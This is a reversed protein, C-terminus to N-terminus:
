KAVEAIAESSAVRTGGCAEGVVERIRSRFREWTFHEARERASGKMERLQLRNSLAWDIRAAVSETDGPATVFGEVGEHILDPAATASTSLIPLGCAMAELLVHGFGEAVSPFVFLDASQYAAALEAHSVSPRITVRDRYPEFLKLDDLVRGCIV